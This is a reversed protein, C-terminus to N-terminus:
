LASKWKPGLLFYLRIGAGIIAGIMFIGFCAYVLDLRIGLIM